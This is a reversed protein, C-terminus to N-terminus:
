DEEEDRTLRYLWYFFLIVLALVFAGFIMEPLINNPPEMRSQIAKGERLDKGVEEIATTTRM